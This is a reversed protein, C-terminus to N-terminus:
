TAGIEYYLEDEDDAHSLILDSDNEGMYFLM